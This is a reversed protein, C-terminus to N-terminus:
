SSPISLSSIRRHHRFINILTQPNKKMKTSQNFSFVDMMVAKLRQWSWKWRHRWGALDISISRIATSAAADKMSHTCMQARTSLGMFILYMTDYEIRQIRWLVVNVMNDMANCVVLTRWIFSDPVVFNIQHLSFFVVFLIFFFFSFRTCSAVNCKIDFGIVSAAHYVKKYCLSHLSFFDIWYVFWTFCSKLDM